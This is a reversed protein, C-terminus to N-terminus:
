SELILLKSLKFRPWHNCDSPEVCVWNTGLLSFAQLHKIGLTSVAFRLPQLTRLIRALDNFIHLPLRPDFGRRGAQSDPGVKSMLWMVACIYNQSSLGHLSATM